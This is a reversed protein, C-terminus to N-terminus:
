GASLCLNDNPLPSSSAILPMISSWDPQPSIDICPDLFLLSPRFICSVELRDMMRNYTDKRLLSRWPRDGFEIIFHSMAIRWDQLPMTWKQSASQIALWVVKEGIWRDPVSERKKIAHRIVSNLSETANTTYIVKRIAEPNCLLCTAANLRNARWSRSIQPYRQMGNRGSRMWRRCRAGEETHQATFGTELDRTVAKYDVGRIAPQQTGIHGSVTWPRWPRYPYREPQSKETGDLVNLWFKAGENKRGAWMGAVRERHSPTDPVLLLPPLLLLAASQYGPQGATAKWSCYLGLYVIPYIADLPCNAMWCGLRNCPMLQKRYWRRLSTQM